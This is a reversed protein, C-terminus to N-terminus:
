GYSVGAGNFQISNACEGPWIVALRSTEHSDDEQPVEFVFSKIRAIAGLGTELLTYSTILSSLSQSFGVVNIVATGISNTTSIGDIQTVLVILLTAIFAVLLNLVLSLWRQICYLTYFPRQSSEIQSLSTEQFSQVWGYARITELGNYTDMIHSFLPSKAELDLHRVQRSTRLYALQILYVLLGLLPLVASIYKAGACILAAQAACTFIDFVLSVTSNPLDEDVLTLDQSFRNLTVGSDTGTYFTYSARMTAELLSKHLTQGSRPVMIQFMFLLTIGFFSLSGVGFAAYVFGYTYNTRRTPESKLADVWFGVWVQGFRACFAYIANLGLHVLLNLVGFSGIYYKYVASDGQSRASDELDIPQRFVPATDGQADHNNDNIDNSKTSSAPQIAEVREVDRHHAQPHCPREVHVLTGETGLFLVSDALEQYHRNHTALIVTMGLEQLLGGQGFLRKCISAETEADLGSFCNDLLLLRKRSYVARALAVRQAQGGSLKIANTGLLTNEMQPSETIDSDLCVAHIVKQYFKEDYQQEGLINDRPSCNQLWVTQGCYAISAGFM